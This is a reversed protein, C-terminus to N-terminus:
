EQNLPFQITFTSGQGITSDIDCTGNLYETRFRINELGIGKPSSSVDFGKGDDEVILILENGEITLQVIVEKADAHKLINKLLEQTIRFTSTKLLDSLLEENGFYNFDFSIDNNNRLTQCLDDIAFELGQQELVFPMLDHSIERVTRCADDILSEAKQYNPLSGIQPFKHQLSSIGMKVTALVAGLGDHLERAVRKREKEEGEIVSKLLQTEQEKKLVKIKQQNLQKNKRNVFLLLITLLIILLLGGALMLLQYNRRQIEVEQTEIEAKQLAIDKDKKETQYSMEVENVAKMREISTLSDKASSFRQHFVYAKEFNGSKAYGDALLLYCQHMGEKDNMKQCLTLCEKAYSMGAPLDGQNIEIEALAMKISLSSMKDKSHSRIALAELLYNKTKLFQNDNKYIKSLSILVEATNLKSHLQEYIKLAAEYCGIASVDKGQLYYLSGLKKFCGAEAFQSNKLQALQLAKKYQNEATKWVKQAAYIDGIESYITAISFTDNQAEAIKLAAILNQQAKEYAGRERYLNGLASYDSILGEEDHMEQKLQLGKKFYVIASDLQGDSHYTTAIQNFINKRREKNSVGYAHDLANKLFFVAAETDQYRAYIAAKKQYADVLERQMEQKEGFSISRDYLTDAAPYNKEQYRLDGMKCYIMAIGREFDISSFLELAYEYSLNAHGLQNMFTEAQGKYFYTIGKVKVNPEKEIISACLILVSDIEEQELQNELESLITPFEGIIYPTTQSYLKCALFSFFFFSFLVLKYKLRYFKFTSL